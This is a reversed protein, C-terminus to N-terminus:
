FRVTGQPHSETHNVWTELASFLEPMWCMQIQLAWTLIKTLFFQEYQCLEVALLPFHPM